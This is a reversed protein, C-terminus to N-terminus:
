DWISVLNSLFASLNAIMEVVLFGVLGSLYYQIVSDSLRELVSMM